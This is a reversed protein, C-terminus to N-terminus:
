NPAHTSEREHLTDLNRLRTRNGRVVLADSDDGVAKCWADREKELEDWLQGLRWDVEDRVLGLVVDAASPKRDHEPLRSGAKGEGAGHKEYKDRCTQADYELELMLAEQWKVGTLPAGLLSESQYRQAIGYCSEEAGEKCTECMEIMDGILRGRERDQGEVFIAWREKDFYSKLSMEVQLDKWFQDRRETLFPFFDDYDAEWKATKARICASESKILDMEKEVDANRIQGTKRVFERIRIREEPLFAGTQGQM